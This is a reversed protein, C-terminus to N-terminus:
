KKKNGKTIMEIMQLSFQASKRQEPHWGDESTMRKLHEIVANRESSSLYQFTTQIKEPERSLLNDWLQEVSLYNTKKM